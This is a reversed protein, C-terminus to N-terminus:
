ASVPFSEYSQILPNRVYDEIYTRLLGNRYLRQNAFKTDIRHLVKVKVGTKQMFQELTVGAIDTYSGRGSQMMCKPVHVMKQGNLRRAVDDFTLLVSCDSDGGLTANPVMMFRARHKRYMSLIKYVSKAMVVADKKELELSDFLSVIRKRNLFATIYAETHITQLNPLGADYVREAEEPLFRRGQRMFEATEDKLGRV